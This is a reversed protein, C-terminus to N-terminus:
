RGYRDGSTDVLSWPGYASWYFTYGAPITVPGVITVVTTGDTHQISVQESASGGNNLVITKVHRNYGAAPASVVTTTSATTVVANSRGPTVVTGISDVWSAQATM